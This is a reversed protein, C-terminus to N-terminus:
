RVRDHGPEARGDVVQKADGMDHAHSYAAGGLTASYSLPLLKPKARFSNLDLALAPSTSLIATAM